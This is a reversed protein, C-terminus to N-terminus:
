PLLRLHLQQCVISTHTDSCEFILSRRTLFVYLNKDRTSLVCTHHYDTAMDYNKEMVLNMFRASVDAKVSNGLHTEPHSPDRVLNKLYKNFRDHTTYTTLTYHMDVIINNSHLAILVSREFCMMWLIRLCGHTFTYEAYHCLHHMGPNLHPVPLCGELLCLALILDTHMAAIERADVVRSGPLINLRRAEDYSHVQGDMRRLAWILLFLATRLRPLKDRIQTALIFYFLVVKRQTKWLRSPRKWFSCGGYYLPDVYHPWSVRSMRDDLMRLEEPTLRWPLDGNNEPWIESFIGRRKADERHMSDKSWSKYGGDGRDIGKGVMVKLLMEVVLKIDHMVDPVNLRRWDFGPWLSLLPKHKHGMYCRGRQEAFATAKIVFSMDRYTAKDRFNLQTTIM